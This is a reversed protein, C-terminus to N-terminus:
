LENDGLLPPIVLGGLFAGAPLQILDVNSSFSGRTNRYM